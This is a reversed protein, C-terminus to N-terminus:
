FDVSNDNNSQSQSDKLYADPHLRRDRYEAAATYLVDTSSNVGTECSDQIVGTIFGIGVVQMAITDPIGFLACAMPILLLSGGAVGSTGAAALAAMVCLLLSTGFDIQIGLTNAAALTMVSITVAAGAMNVTAGLPISVSYTNEDLNLRKCLALNVPINAASSRTFFAPIFSDRLCVFVLPYPNKHTCLFVIIPNMVFVVFGMTGVLVLILSGYTVLQGLGHQAISAYVLGLIGIPACEIVWRVVKTVGDSIEEIVKKTKDSATKLAAGLLCSWLLLGLYNGNVISAIPNAVMSQLMNALVEGIGAPPTLDGGTNLAAYDFTLTVPFIKSAILASLAALFNGLVYLIIIFKINTKQGKKTQCISSIILVFVLLPAIARLAGVFLEGLLSLAFVNPVTIGLLIGIAMGIIIKLVLSTNLWLNLVKKM